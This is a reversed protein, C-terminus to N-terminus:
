PSQKGRNSVNFGPLEVEILYGERQLTLSFTDGGSRLTLLRETETTTATVLGDVMVLLDDAHVGAEAAPSGPRVYEVFPPTRAAITEVVAFGWQEFPNVAQRVTDQQSDLFRDGQLIRRVSASVQTAPLAYNLWGGTVRGRQEVGIMGVPRGRFDTLLGGAAGPNSTVSDVLLLRDTGRSAGSGFAVERPVVGALHTRMVSAPEAGSAINFLNSFALLPTGFSPEAPQDLDVVGLSEGAPDIKVVAVRLLPDSGLVRGAYRDGSASVVTVEGEELVLSDATAIHGEESVIFGSQYAELWQLGGAGYIKVLSRQV